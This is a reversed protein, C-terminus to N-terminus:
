LLQESFDRGGLGHKQGGGFAAGAVEAGPESGVLDLKRFGGLQETNLSHSAPPAARGDEAASKNGELLLNRADLPESSSADIDALDGSSNAHRSEEVARLAGADGVRVELGGTPADGFSDASRSPATVVVACEVHMIYSAAAEVWREIGM